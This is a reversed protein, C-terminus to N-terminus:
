MSDARQIYSPLLTMYRPKLVHSEHNMHSTSGEFLCGALCFNHPSWNCWPCVETMVERFSHTAPLQSFRGWHGEEECRSRIIATESPASCQGIYLICSYLVVWSITVSIGMVTVTYHLGFTHYSLIPIEIATSPYIHPLLFVFNTCHSLCWYRVHWLMAYAVSTINPYWWLTSWRLSSALM